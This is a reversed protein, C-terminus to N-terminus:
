PVGFSIVTTASAAKWFTTVSKLRLVHFVFEWERRSHRHV